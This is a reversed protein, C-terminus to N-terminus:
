GCDYAVQVGTHDSAWCIPAPLPGCTPAFPNPVDAWLRTGPGPGAGRLLVPRCSAGRRAPVLFVYDIRSRLRPNPSEMDALTEDERGSTCGVSTVPDCEPNGAALYTDIWGQGTLTRYVFSDPRANLDGAVLAANPVDHTAEVYLTMQVAQCDRVTEAGAAVCESPCDDGCPSPGGDAGSALHTSYVDLPGTPHAIRTWLVKRFGLFLTQQGVHEIPHRSLVFEDDIGTRPEGLAVSYPFDCVTGARAELQTASPPWIEQLTVVDPCGSAEIFDMVLDVRDALRCNGTDPACFLGHLLNLNALTADPTPASTEPDGCGGLIALCAAISVWRHLRM